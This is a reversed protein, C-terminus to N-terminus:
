SETHEGDEGLTVKVLRLKKIIWKENTVGESFLIVNLKEVEQKLIKYNQRNHYSIDSTVSVNDFTDSLLWPLFYFVGGPAIAKIEDM